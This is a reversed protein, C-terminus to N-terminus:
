GPELLPSRVGDAWAVANQEAAPLITLPTYPTFISVDQRRFFRGVPSVM